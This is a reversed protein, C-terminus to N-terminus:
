NAWIWFNKLATDVFWCFWPIVAMGVLILAAYSFNLKARRESDRIARQKRDTARQATKMAYEIMKDKEALELRHELKLDEIERDKEAIIALYWMKDRGTFAKKETNM